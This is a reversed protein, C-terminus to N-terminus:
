IMNYRKFPSFHSSKNPSESRNTSRVHKLDRGTGDAELKQDDRLEGLLHRLLYAGVAAGHAGAARGNHRSRCCWHIKQHHHQSMHSTIIYYSYLIIYAHTKVNWKTPATKTPVHGNEFTSKIIKAQVAGNGTLPEEATLIQGDSTMLSIDGGHNQFLRKFTSCPFFFM